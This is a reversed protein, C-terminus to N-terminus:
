KCDCYTINQPKKKGKKANILKVNLYCNGYKIPDKEKLEWM